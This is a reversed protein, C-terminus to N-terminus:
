KGKRPKKLSMDPYSFTCEWGPLVAAILAAHSLGRNGHNTGREGRSNINCLLLALLVRSCAAHMRQMEKIIRDWKPIWPFPKYEGM